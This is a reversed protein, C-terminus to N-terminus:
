AISFHLQWSCDHIVKQNCCQTQILTHIAWTPTLAFNTWCPGLHPFMQSKCNQSKLSIKDLHYTYLKHLGLSSTYNIAIEFSKHSPSDNKHHVTTPVVFGHQIHM